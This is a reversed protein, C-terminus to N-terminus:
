LADFEKVLAEGRKDGSYARYFALAIVDGIRKWAKLDCIKDAPILFGIEHDQNVHAPGQVRVYGRYSGTNELHPM